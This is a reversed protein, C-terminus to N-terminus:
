RHALRMQTIGHRAQVRWRGDSCRLLTDTFRVTSFLTPVGDLNHILLALSTAEAADGDVTVRLQTLSQTSKGLPVREAHAVFWPELEAHGAMDNVLPEDPGRRMTFAGDETFCDLWGELDILVFTDSIKTLTDTIAREDELTRVRAALEEITAVAGASM